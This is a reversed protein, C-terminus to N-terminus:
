RGIIGARLAYLAAGYCTTGATSALAAEPFLVPIGGISTWYGVEALFFGAPYGTVGIGVVYHQATAVGGQTVAYAIHTGQTGEVFGITMTAGGYAGYIALGGAATAAGAAVGLAIGQGVQIDTDQAGPHTLYYWYDSLSPIGMGWIKGTPDSISVPRNGVYRRLNSEGSLIGIPDDSLWQGIAPDYYRARNYQLGTEHDRERGTFAFITEVTANSEAVINGFGDFTRHNAISPIDTGSDYEALDRVTGLHDALPWLLDGASSVSTVPEDALIQDVHPGYLYRHTLDGDDFQLAIQDNEWSFFTSAPDNGAPGDPDVHKAVRRNWVDYVFEVSSLVGGQDDKEVVAILRNRHDWVYQTVHGDSLRTRTLRNGEHDYTYSYTEDALVQNNTGTSYGGGTRNGNEDYAYAEDAQSAHDAATLQSTHDYSYESLGDLFSDIWTIRSSADYGYRYGALLGEGWGEGPPASDTTHLLSLLRGM